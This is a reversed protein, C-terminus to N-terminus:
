TNVMNLAATRLRAQRNLWGHGFEPFTSLGRYYHVHEDVLRAILMAKDWANVKSLTIPGIDGDEAAGVIQQLMRASRGTGANVGFDWVALDVGSPLLDGKVANWYWHRYILEATEVPLTRMYDQTVVAANGPGEWAILTPAAIGWNTGVLRGVGVEGGTWNGPDDARDSYGGEEGVTFQFCPQFDLTSM